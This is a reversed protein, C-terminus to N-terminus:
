KKTNEMSAEGLPKGSRTDTTFSKAKNQPVTQFYTPKAVDPGAQINENQPM